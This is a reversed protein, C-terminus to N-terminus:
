VTSSQAPNQKGGLLFKVVTPGCRFFTIAMLLDLAIILVSHALGEIAVRYLYNSTGLEDYHRYHFFSMLEVFLDTFRYFALTLFYLTVIRSALMLGHEKSM